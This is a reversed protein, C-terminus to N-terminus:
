PIFYPNKEATKLTDLMEDFDEPKVNYVYEDNVQLCPAAACAALCEIKSITIRGDATTENLKTGLKHLGQEILEDSGRLYCSISDCVKVHFKGVPKQNYMRYFTVVQEVEGRLIGLIQALEEMPETPIFGFQAQVIHLAPLIASRASPYKDKLEIIEQRTSESLSFEGDREKLNQSYNDIM